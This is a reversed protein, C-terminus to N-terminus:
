AAHQPRTAQDLLHSSQRSTPSSKEPSTASSVGCSKANPSATRREVHAKTRPHNLMRVRTITWLASNAQRDGGRNLRHRTTKGSSAEVPSPGCLAAFSTEHALRHPNDGASILLQSATEYGIGYRALLAPALEDLITAM